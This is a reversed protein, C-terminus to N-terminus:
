WAGQREESPHYPSNLPLRIPRAFRSTNPLASYASLTMWSSPDLYGMVIAKPAGELESYAHLTPALNHQALLHHVEGGYQGNILKVFVPITEPLKTQLLATYLLRNPNTTNVKAKFELHASISQDYLLCSKYIRPTFSPFKTPPQIQNLTRPSSILLSYFYNHQTLLM